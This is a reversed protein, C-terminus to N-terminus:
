TFPAVNMNDEEAAAGARRNSSQHNFIALQSLATMAYANRHMPSSQM